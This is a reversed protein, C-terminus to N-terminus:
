EHNIYMSATILTKDDQALVITYSLMTSLDGTFITITGFINKIKMLGYNM